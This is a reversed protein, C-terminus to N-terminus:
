LPHITKVRKSGMPDGLDENIESQLVDFNKGCFSVSTNDAYM